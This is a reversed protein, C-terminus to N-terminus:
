YVKLLAALSPLPIVLALRWHSSLEQADRVDPQVTTVMFFAQTLTYCTNATMRKNSLATSFHVMALPGALGMLGNMLGCFFGLLTFQWGMKRCLASDIDEDLVEAVHLVQSAQRAKAYARFEVTIKFLAVLGFTLNLCTKISELIDLNEGTQVLIYFGLATGPAGPLSLLLLSRWLQRARKTVALFLVTSTSFQVALVNTRGYVKSVDSSDAVLVQMTASGSFYNLLTLLLDQKAALLLHGSLCLFSVITAHTSAPFALRGSPPDVCPMRTPMVDVSM